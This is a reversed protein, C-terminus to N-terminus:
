QLQHLAIDSTVVCRLLCHVRSDEIESSDVQQYVIRPHENGLGKGFIGGFVKASSIFRIEPSEEVYRLKSCRLHAKLFRPVDNGDRRRNHILRDRSERATEDIQRFTAQLRDRACQRDLKRSIADTEVGNRRTNHVSWHVLYLRMLEQFFQTREVSQGLNRLDHVQDLEQFGCGEYVPFHNMKVPSCMGAFPLLPLLRILVVNKLPDCRIADLQSQM